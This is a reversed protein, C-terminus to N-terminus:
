VNGCSRLGVKLWAEFWGEFWGEFVVVHGSDSGVEEHIADYLQRPKMNEAGPRNIAVSQKVISVINDRLEEKHKLKRILKLRLKDFDGDDKLKSIVNLCDMEKKYVSTPFGYSHTPLYLCLDMASLFHASSSIGSSQLVKCRYGSTGVVDHLIEIQLM